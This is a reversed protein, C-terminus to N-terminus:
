EMVEVDLCWVFMDSKSADLLPPEAGGDRAGDGVGDCFSRM